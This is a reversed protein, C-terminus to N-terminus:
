AKKSKKAAAGPAKGAPADNKPVAADYAQKAVLGIIVLVLQFGYRRLLSKPKAVPAPQRRKGTWSIKQEDLVATLLFTNPSTVMFMTDRDGDQARIDRLARANVRSRAPRASRAAAGAAARASARVTSIRVGNSSPQLLFDYSFITAGMAAGDRKVFDGKSPKVAHAKVAVDMTTEGEVYRGSLGFQDRKMIYQTRVVTTDALTKDMDWEGEFFNVFSWSDEALSSAALLLLSCAVLRVRAAM